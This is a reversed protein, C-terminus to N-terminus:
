KLVTFIGSREIVQEDNVRNLPVGFISYTYFPSFSDINSGDSRTGNWGIISKGNGQPDITNPCDGRNISGDQAEETYILNGKNDYVNFTLSEFGTFM